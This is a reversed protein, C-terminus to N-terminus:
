ISLLFFHACCTCLHTSNVPLSLPSHAKVLSAPTVPLSLSLSVLHLPPPLLSPCLIITFSSICFLTSVYLNVHIFIVKHIYLQTRLTLSLQFLRPQNESASDVTSNDRFLRINLTHITVVTANSRQSCFLSTIAWRDPHAPHVWHEWAQDSEPPKISKVNIRRVTPQYLCVSLLWVSQFANSVPM